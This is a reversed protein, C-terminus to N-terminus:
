IRYHFPKTDNLYKNVASSQIKIINSIKPPIVNENWTNENNINIEWTTTAWGDSTEENTM